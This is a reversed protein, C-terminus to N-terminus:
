SEGMGNESLGSTAGPVNIPEAAEEVMADARDVAGGVAVEDLEPFDEELVPAM